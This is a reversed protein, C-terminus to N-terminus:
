LTEWIALINECAAEIEKLARSGARAGKYTRGRPVDFCLISSSPLGSGNNSTAEFMVQSIIKLLREDPPQTNFELKIIKEKGKENIHLDPRVTVRVGRFSLFLTLDGLPEFKKSGFHESYSLIGRANNTLRTKSQGSSQKGLYLLQDAKEQLWQNPHSNKHYASIFDRAERYYIAQASGEPDPYKFDRLIKRQNAPSSTMFKALGKVSIKIM